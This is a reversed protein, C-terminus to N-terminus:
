LCGPKGEGGTRSKPGKLTTRLLPVGEGPQGGGLFAGFCQKKRLEWTAEPDGETLTGASSPAELELTRKPRGIEKEHREKARGRAGM